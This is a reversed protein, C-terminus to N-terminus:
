GARRGATSRSIAKKRKKLFKQFEELDMCNLVREKPVGGKRAMAVGWRVMGTEWTSHADPNISLMCGADLAMRHWRWDLDLRLPNANIEVAVGHAACAKLIEEVDVDYGHRHLLKRGTMHGLITTYPNQVARIIRETQSKQVLRFQSHISAIVFDFRALIDDPYDLGGDALIDSEIGRFIRFSSGYRRNLRDTEKHQDAIEEPSLGSAYRASQSHDSVGFYGYGRKRADEAMKELTNAGDSSTTHAHLIGRIDEAAVLAPPNGALAQGIEGRGERLEPEIFPLGLARYIAEETGSAVLRRGKKLGQPGLSFGKRAALEKLERLHAESGTAFLLTVGFIERPCLRVTIGDERRITRAPEGGAAAVLSLDGILECQRRYEGAITIDKWGPHATALDAKASELLKAAKHIHIKGATQKGIEIGQLIKRELAPTIVSKLEGARLANELSEIDSLGTGRYIKVIQEPRLGPIGLLGLMGDPIERRLEELRPHSGTEHLRIIFEAITEGIGPIATLEGRAIIQELPRTRGALSKAAAEYARARYPNGGRLAMRRGFERLLRAVEATDLNAM